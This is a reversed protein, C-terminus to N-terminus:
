DNSARGWLEPLNEGKKPNEGARERNELSPETVVGKENRPALGRKSSLISSRERETMTQKELTVEPRKASVGM